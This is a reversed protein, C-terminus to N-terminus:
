VFNAIEWVQEKFQVPKDELLRCLESKADSLEEMIKNYREFGGGKLIIRAHECEVAHRIARVSEVLDRVQMTREAELFADGFDSFDKTWILENSPDQPTGDYFVPPKDGPVVTWSTEKRSEWLSFM